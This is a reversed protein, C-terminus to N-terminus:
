FNLGSLSNAVNDEIYDIIADVVDENPEVAAPSALHLDSCLTDLLEIDTGYSVGVVMVACEGNVYIGLCVNGTANDIADNIANQTDEDMFAMMLQFMSIDSLSDALDAVDVNLRLTGDKESYEDDSLDDIDIGFQDLLDAYYEILDESKDETFTLQAAIVADVELDAIDSLGIGELDDLGTAREYIAGSEIDDADFPIDYADIFDEFGDTDELDSGEFQSYFGDILDDEDVRNLKSFKIEDVGYSDVVSVFDETTVKKNKSCGAVGLVMSLVVTVAIIKKIKM